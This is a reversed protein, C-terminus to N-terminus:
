QQPSPGGTRTKRTFSTIEDRKRFRLASWTADVSVQAVGFLDLAYVPEWGVDRTLDTVIGGSKKPYCIWLHGGREYSSAFENALRSLDAQDIAFGIRFSPTESQHELIPMLMPAIDDPCQWVQTGIGTRYGLKEVLKKM